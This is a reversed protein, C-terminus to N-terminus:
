LDDEIKQFYDLQLITEQDYTAVEFRKKCKPERVDIEKSLVVFSCKFYKVGILKSGILTSCFTSVVQQHPVNKDKEQTKSLNIREVEIESL